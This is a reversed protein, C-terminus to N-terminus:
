TQKNKSKGYDYKIIPLMKTGATKIPFEALEKGLLRHLNSVSLPLLKNSRKYEDQIVPSFM